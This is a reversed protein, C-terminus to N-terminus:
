NNQDHLYGGISYHNIVYSVRGRIDVRAPGVINHWQSHLMFTHENNKGIFAPGHPNHLDGKRNKYYINGYSHTIKKM